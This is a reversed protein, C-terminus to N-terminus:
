DALTFLREKKEDRWVEMDEFEKLMRLLIPSPKIVEVFKQLDSVSINPHALVTRSAGLRRKIDNLEKFINRHDQSVNNFFIRSAICNRNTEIKGLTYRASLLDQAIM